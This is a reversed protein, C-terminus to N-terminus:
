FLSKVRLDVNGLNKVLVGRERLRSNIADGLSVKISEISANAIFVTVLGNNYRNNLIQFLFNSYEVKDVEDLILIEASSYSNIINETNGNKAFKRSECELILDIASKYLVTCKKAQIANLALWCALMTKGTGVGGLLFLNCQFSYDTKQSSNKAEYHTLNKYKKPFNAYNILEQILANENKQKIALEQILANENKEKECVPCSFPFFIERQISKILTKKAKYIHGNQCTIVISNDVAQM